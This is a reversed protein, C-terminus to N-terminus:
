VKQAFVCSIADLNDYRNIKTRLLVPKGFIAAAKLDNYNEISDYRQHEPMAVLIMPRRVVEISLVNLSLFSTPM